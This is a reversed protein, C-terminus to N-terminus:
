ILPFFYFLIDCTILNGKNEGMREGAGHGRGFPAQSPAQTAYFRFDQCVGPIRWAFFIAMGKELPGEWGLFQLQTQHMAPPIKVTQLM